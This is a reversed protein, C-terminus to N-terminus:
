CLKCLLGTAILVTRSPTPQQLPRFVQSQKCCAYAYAHLYVLFVFSAVRLQTEFFFKSSPIVFVALTYTEYPRSQDSADNSRGQSRHQVYM